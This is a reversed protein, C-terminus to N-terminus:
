EYRLAKMPDTKAARRAPLYTALLTVSVIMLAAATYTLPDSTSIGQLFFKDWQRIQPLLAALVRAGALTLGLGIALGLTLLLVGRRLVPVLVDRATAGLAICIGIERTRRAVTYAMVAYIGTAALLLGVMSFANLTGSLIRQPELLGSVRQAVTRIQCAPASPIAEAAKRLTPILAEPDGETRTLIVPTYEPHQALPLYVWARSEELISRLKVASVVGVIEWVPNSQGMSSLTVHRGVPSQGPWYRKAFLEDVIMVRPADPGDHPTFNRGALLRQGLTQFYGPNVASFHLGPTRGPQLDFGEIHSIQTMGGAESLPADSALAISKLSPWRSVRSHLTEIFQRYQPQDNTPWVEPSLTVALIRRPDFGPNIRKLGILNRLCLGSCVTVVVAVAIQGVVLANHANWRRAPLNAGETSEKLAPIVDRRVMQLAPTLGFAIGAGLSITLALLLARPHLGPVLNVQLGPDRNATAIRPLVTCVLRDLGVALIIGCVGALFALLLSEILLQRVIRPRGAGLARRIAIEKQRTAARALQLNATNACAILLVLAAIGLFLALPYATLRAHQPVAGRRGDRILTSKQPEGPKPDNMQADLVRLTAQAQTPTVGPKLRGLLNVWNFEPSSMASVGAYVALPGYVDPQRGVITGKFHAPAVGIITLTQGHLILQKGLVDARGGFKRRWLGHSIVAVPDLAHDTRGQQPVMLHGLVPEVGLLAFYNASVAMERVSAVEDGIRLETSDCGTFAALDAFVDDRHRYAEYTPYSFLGQITEWSGHRYLSQVSVLQHPKNVPLPRMSVQDLTNFLATNAGVGLGIVLLVVATFGPNRALMRAGYKIDQWLTEM